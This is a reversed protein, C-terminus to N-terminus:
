SMLRKTGLTRGFSNYAPLYFRYNLFFHNIALQSDEIHNKELLSDTNLRIGPVVRNQAGLFISRKLESSKYRIGYKKKEILKEIDEESVDMKRAVLSTLGLFIGIVIFFGHMNNGRRKAKCLRLTNRCM